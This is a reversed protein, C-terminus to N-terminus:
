RSIYAGVSIYSYSCLGIDASLKALLITWINHTIETHLLYSVLELDLDVDHGM